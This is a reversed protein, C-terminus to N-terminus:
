EDHGVAVKQHQVPSEGVDALWGGPDDGIDHPKFIASKRLVPIDNLVFRCARLGLTPIRHEATRKGDLDVRKGSIV